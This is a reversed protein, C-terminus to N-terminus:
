IYHSWWWVVWWNGEETYILSFPFCVNLCFSVYIVAANTMITLYHFCGLNGVSLQIFLNHYM